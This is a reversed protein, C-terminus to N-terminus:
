TPEPTRTSRGGRYDGPACGVLAKFDRIFHAQDFYGLELALRTWDITRGGDIEALASHLRYRNIVWKPGIGVHENFLRQLRRKGIKWRAVVGDVTTLSRDDAIADTIQGALLGPETMPPLREVLLAEAAEVLALDDPYEWIRRAFETVETGLLQAAPLQGNRLTSVSRGLLPRFGGPRFKVGFVAGRNGLTVAFRGSHIGYITAAGDEVILHVNPHPLTERLVPEAGQRDWTVIWFHQVHGALDPRPGIRAHHFEGDDTYHQPRILGRAPGVQRTEAIANVPWPKSQTM